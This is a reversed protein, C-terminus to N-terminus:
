NEPFAVLTPLGGFKGFSMDWNHPIGWGCYKIVNNNSGCQVYKSFMVCVHIVFLCWLQYGFNQSGFKTKYWVTSIQNATKKNLSFQRFNTQSAASHYWHNVWQPRTVGCPSLSRPWCQSLYHSTAQRCWVMVQVLTSKDDILDLSMWRSSIEHSIDWGDIVLFSSSFWNVLVKNFDELPWHTLVSLLLTSINVLTNEEDPIRDRRVLLSVASM